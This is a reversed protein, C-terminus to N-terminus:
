MLIYWKFAEKYHRETKSSPLSFSLSSTSTELLAHGNGRGSSAALAECCRGVGCCAQADGQAAALHFWKSAAERDCPVAMPITPRPTTIHPTATPPAQSVKMRTAVPATKPSLLISHSPNRHLKLSTSASSSSPSSSPSHPPSLSYSSSTDSPSTTCPSTPSSPPEQQKGDVRGNNPPYPHVSQFVAKPAGYTTRAIGDNSGSYASSTGNGINGSGGVNSSNSNSGNASVGGGSISVFPQNNAHAPVGQWLYEGLNCQAIAHGKSAAMEFYRFISCTYWSFFLRDPSIIVIACQFLSVDMKM